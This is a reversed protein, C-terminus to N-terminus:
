FIVGDNTQFSQHFGRFNEALFDVHRGVNLDPVELVRILLPVAEVLESLTGGSVGVFEL